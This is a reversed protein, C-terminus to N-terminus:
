MSHTIKMTYSYYVGTFSLQFYTKQKHSQSEIFYDATLYFEGNKVKRFRPDLEYM